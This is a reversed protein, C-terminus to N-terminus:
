NSPFGWFRESLTWYDAFALAQKVDRNCRLKCSCKNVGIARFYVLRTKNFSRYDAGQLLVNEKQCDSDVAAQLDFNFQRLVLSRPSSDKQESCPCGENHNEAVMKKNICVCTSVEKLYKIRRDYSRNWVQESKCSCIPM